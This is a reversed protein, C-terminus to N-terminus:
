DEGVYSLLRRLQETLHAWTARPVRRGAGELYAWHEVDALVIRTALEANPLTGEPGLEVRGIRAFGGRAMHANVQDALATVDPPPVDGRRM